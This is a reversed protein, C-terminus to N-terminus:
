QVASHEQEDGKPRPKTSIIRYLRHLRTLIAHARRDDLELNYVEICHQKFEEVMAKTPRVIPIPTHRILHETRANLLEEQEREKNTEM